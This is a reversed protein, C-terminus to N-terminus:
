ADPLPVGMVSRRTMHAELKRDIEEDTDGLRARARRYGDSFARRAVEIDPRVGETIAPPEEHAYKLRRIIGNLEAITPFRTMTTIWEEVAQAAFEFENLAFSNAFTSAVADDVFVDPYAGHLANLLDAAQNSNV